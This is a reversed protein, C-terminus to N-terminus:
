RLRQVQVPRLEARDANLMCTGTQQPKYMTNAGSGSGRDHVQISPDSVSPVYRSANLFMEDVHRPYHFGFVYSLWRTNALLSNPTHSMEPFGTALNDVLANLPTSQTDHSWYIYLYPCECWTVALSWYVNYQGLTYRSRCQDCVLYLKPPSEDFAAPCAHCMHKLQCLWVTNTAFPTCSYFPTDKPQGGRRINHCDSSIAASFFVALESSEQLWWATLHVNWQQPPSRCNYGPDSQTQPHTGM